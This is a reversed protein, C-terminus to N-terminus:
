SAAHYATMLKITEAAEQVDHARLINAGNLLALSHLATTGNLAQQPSINLTRCIMSKRSIGALVPLGLLRFISLNKLLTFNQEVTKGFGFGPDLVVDTIGISRLYALKQTFFTLLDEVVNTTYVPNQQMNQPTGQMHMLVYPVQLKAVTPLLQADISGASIDNVMGAGAAVAEAATTAWVTDISIIAEPFRQKIATIAPVVRRMEEDPPILKAGPRSSMGGIDLLSAGKTLMKEAQQLFANPLIYKGGDFFSDPTLNLIGMVVPQNLCLLKGACNLTTNVPLVAPTHMRFHHPQTFQKDPM